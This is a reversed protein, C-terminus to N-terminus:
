YDPKEIRTSQLFFFFLYIFLYYYYFLYIFLYIFLFVYDKRSSQKQKKKTKKQLYLAQINTWVFGSYLLAFSIATQLFAHM